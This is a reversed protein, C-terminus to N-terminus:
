FTIKITFNTQNGKLKVGSALGGGGQRESTGSRNSM